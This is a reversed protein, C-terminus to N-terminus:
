LIIFYFNFFIKVESLGDVDESDTKSVLSNTTWFASLLGSPVTSTVKPGEDFERVPISRSESSLTTPGEDDVASGLTTPGDGDDTTLIIDGAVDRTMASTTSGLTPGDGDDTIFNDGIVVDRTTASDTIFIDGGRTTAPITSSGLTPGDGDDTIFNDGIVVDRTTAPDTIFIDGGVVDRTTAPITSSGPTSGDGNDTISIDGTTTSGPIPGETTLIIGVVGVGDRITAALGDDSMMASGDTTGAVVADNLVGITTAPGDILVGRGDMFRAASLLLFAIM